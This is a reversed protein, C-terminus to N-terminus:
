ARERGNDLEVKWAELEAMKGDRALASQAPWTDTRMAAYNSGYKAIVASLSAPTM